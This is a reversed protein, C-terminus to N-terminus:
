RAGTGAVDMVWIDSDAEVWTVYLHSADAVFFYGLYGRPGDLRTLRSVGGGISM